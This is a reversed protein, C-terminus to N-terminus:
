ANQELVLVAGVLRIAQRHLPTQNRRCIECNLRENPNNSWIPGPSSVRPLVDTGPTVLHDCVAPPKWANVYDFRITTVSRRRTPRVGLAADSQCRRAMASQPHRSMLNAANTPAADNWTPESIAEVLGLHADRQHGPVGTLRLCVLDALVREVGLGTESTFVRM